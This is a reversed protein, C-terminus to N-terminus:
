REATPAGYPVFSIVVNRGNEVVRAIYWARTGFEARLRENREGFDRAFLVPGTLAGTADFQAHPLLEALSVNPTAVRVLENACTATFPGSPTLVRRDAGGRGPLPQAPPLREVAAMVALRRVLPAGVEADLSDLVTQIACADRTAVLASARLPPEGLQQLRATLRSHWGDPVFVVANTLGAAQVREVLAAAHTPRFPFARTMTWARPTAWTVALWLPVLLGAALRRTPTHSRSRLVDPLRAVSVLLAPTAIFLFRPGVFYSESWYAGYGVLIAGLIAVLLHDWVTASRQLVLVTCAVLLAPVPWGLLIANLRMLYSSILYLGREPTHPTGFPDLHFGPRHAAGNLVDYAFRTASGTTAHNAALLIIVPIAGAVVQAILSPALAPRQVVRRLQFLGIPLAVLVADYPRITAACGIAFGVGAAAAAARTRTPADHWAVLAALACTVAALTGVHNMMSGGMFLVFPSLAFLITARRAFREDGIGRAFFHFAVVAVGTLIPDILWPAGLMTGLQLLAPGGIPFQGFWRGDVDLTMSTSFFEPHAPARAFFRGAGLLRAQWLQAFEDGSVAHHGFLTAGFHFALATAAAGALVAFALSPVARLARDVVDLAAQSRRQAFRALALAIGGIIVLWLLWGHVASGWWPASRGNTLLNAVPVLGLGGLVGAALRLPWRAQPSTASPSAAASAAPSSLERAADPERTAHPPREGTM